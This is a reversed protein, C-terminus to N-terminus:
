GVMLIPVPFLCLPSYCSMFLFLLRGESRFYVVHEVVWFKAGIGLEVVRLRLRETM